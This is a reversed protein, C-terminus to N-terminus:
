IVNRCSNEPWGTGKKWRCSGSPLIGTSTSILIRRRVPHNVIAESESTTFGTGTFASRAQFRAMECSLGTLTLATTALRTILLSLFLVTLLAILGVVGVM